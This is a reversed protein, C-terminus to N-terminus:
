AFSTPFSLQAHEFAKRELGDVNHIDITEPQATGRNGSESFTRYVITERPSIEWIEVSGNGEM